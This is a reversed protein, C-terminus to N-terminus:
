KFKYQPRIKGARKVRDRIADPNYGCSDCIADFEETEMWLRASEAHDNMRRRDEIARLIAAAWLERCADVDYATSWHGDSESGSGITREM